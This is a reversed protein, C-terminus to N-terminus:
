IYSPARCASVRRDIFTYDTQVSKFRIESESVIEFEYEDPKKADSDVEYFKNRRIWWRGERKTKHMGRETYHVFIITYTGDASRNQVWSRVLRGEHNIYQGEWTEVFTPKIDKQVNKKSARDMFACGSQMVILLVLALVIKVKNM